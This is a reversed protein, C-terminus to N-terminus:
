PREVNGDKLFLGHENVHVDINNNATYLDPM